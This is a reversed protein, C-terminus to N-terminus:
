NKSEKRSLIALFYIMKQIKNKRSLSAKSKFLVISPIATKVATSITKSALHKKLCSRDSPIFNNSVLQMRVLMTRLRDLINKLGIVKSLSFNM